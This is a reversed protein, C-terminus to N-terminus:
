KDEPIAVSVESSTVELSAGVWVVQRGASTKRRALPSGAASTWLLATGAERAKQEVTGGVAFLPDDVYIEARLLNPDVLTAVSRGM